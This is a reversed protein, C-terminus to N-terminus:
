PKQNFTGMDLDGQPPDILIPGDFQVPGHFRASGNVGLTQINTISNGHMNLNTQATYRVFDDPLTEWKMGSAGDFALYEGAHHPANTPVFAFNNTHTSTEGYYYTTGFPATTWTATGVISLDNGHGTADRITTGTDPDLMPWFAAMSGSPPSLTGAGGNWLAAVDGTSLPRSYVGVPGFKAKARADDRWGLSGLAFPVSQATTEFHHMVGAYLGNLYFTTTETASEYSAIALAWQNVPMYSDTSIDAYGGQFVLQGSGGHCLRFADGPNGLGANFLYFGDDSLPYVWLFVAKDGAAPFWYGDATKACGNGDFQIAGTAGSGSVDVTTQTTYGIYIQSVNSAVQGGFDATNTLHFSGFDVSVALIGNTIILGSGLGTLAGANINYLGAGDGYFQGASVSEANWISNGNMDLGGQMTGGNLWQFGSTLNYLTTQITEALSGSSVYRQDYRADNEGRSLVSQDDENAPSFVHLREFHATDPHVTQRMGDPAGTAFIFANSHEPLVWANFGGSFSNEGEAMNNTGVAVSNVGAATNGSQQVVGEVVLNTATDARLGAALCLGGSALIAMWKMTSMECDGRGRKITKM